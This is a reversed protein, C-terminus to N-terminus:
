ELSISRSEERGFGEIEIKENSFTVVSFSNETETEVMGKMNVFHIGNQFVYNGAHNHGNLYM